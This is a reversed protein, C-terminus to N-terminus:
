PAPRLRLLREQTHSDLGPINRIAGVDLEWEIAEDVITGAAIKAWCNHHDYLVEAKDPKYYRDVAEVKLAVNLWELGFAVSPFLLGEAGGPRFYVSAVAASNAYESENGSAVSKTFEDGLYSSLLQQVPGSQRTALEKLNRGRRPPLRDFGIAFLRPRASGGTFKCVLVTLVDGNGTTSERLATHRNEAGYFVPCRPMNARGLGVKNRDPPYWLAEVQSFLQGANNPRARYVNPLHLPIRWQFFGTLLKGVLDERESITLRSVRNTLQDIISKKENLKRSTRSKKSL